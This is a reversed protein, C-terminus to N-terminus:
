QKGEEMTEKKEYVINTIEKALNMGCAFYFNIEDNSLKWGNGAELLYFSVAEAIARKGKDFSKYEELKNQVKPLLGKIEKESLKLGQLQKIFPKSKKDEYQTWFLLETLAGLLFIGRAAPTTFSKGYKEFFPSFSETSMAVEEFKILGLKEFFLMDLVADRVDFFFKGGTEIDLFDRRIKNMMVQLIFHFDLNGGKFTKDVIELFYKDLDNSKKGEDSKQFFQRIRRFNFEFKEGFIKDVEDKKEMITRLRSPLVDEVLLLIREVGGSQERSLFFFNFTLYDNEQSLTRWIRNERVVIEKKDTLSQEHKNIMEFIRFIRERLEDGGFMFKPVIYYRLGYFSFGLNALVFKKGEELSQKCEGCVPYNKWAEEKRFGGSIFGPKDNTYFKFIDVVFVADKTKSCLSCLKDKSTLRADRKAAAQVLYSQFAEFDGIYKEDDGDKVKVTLMAKKQTEYSKVANAINEIDSIFATKLNTLFAKGDEGIQFPSLDMKEFWGQIKRPFTKDFEKLMAAPTFNVGNKSGTRYLYKNVKGLDFEELKVELFKFGEEHKEFVIAIVNEANPKEILTSLLTKNGRKLITDGLEKVAQIM